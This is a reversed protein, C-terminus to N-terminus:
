RSGGMMPLSQSAGNGVPLPKSDGFAPPVPGPKTEPRDAEPGPPGGLGLAELYEESTSPFASGGVTQSGGGAALRGMAGNGDHTQWALAGNVGLYGLEEYFKNPSGGGKYVGTGHWDHLVMDAIPGKLRDVVPGNLNDLVDTANEVAPNLRHILPRLDELVDRLDAVVPRARDLVPDAKDLLHGLRRATPRLDDSNDRLRHLTGRLDELGARTERMTEPSTRISDALPRAGAALAATSRRFDAFLAGLQGQKELAGAATTRLGSVVDTLDNDPRNGRFATLVDGTPKLTSPADNLLDRIAATGGQKLTGDFNGLIGPVAAITKPTFATLVDGLEVPTKTRAMPIVGGSYRGNGGGPILEVYYIGGLLTTATVAASPTAGLKDLTGRDVTMTVLATDHDTKESSTVTGVEVDAIKVKSHYPQLKYGKAFEAQVTDGFTLFTGIQAKAFVVAGFLLVATLAFLGVKLPSAKRARLRVGASAKRLSNM